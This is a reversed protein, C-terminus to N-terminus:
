HKMTTCECVTKGTGRQTFLAQGKGVCRRERESGSRGRGERRALDGEGRRAMSPRLTPRTEHIALGDKIPIGRGRPSEQASLIFRFGKGRDRPGARRTGMGIGVAIDGILLSHVGDQMPFTHAVLIEAIQNFPIKVVQVAAEDGLSFGESHASKESMGPDGRDSFHDAGAGQGGSM